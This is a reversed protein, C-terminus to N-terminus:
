RSLVAAAGAAPLRVTFASGRGPASEVAIKGSHLHAIEQAIALGLGAGGGSRSAEVRYFREFLHPLHEAPMGPGTDLFAVRISDGARLARVTVKGGAPTYKIANDLLNLFLSILYDPEGQVDLESAVDVSLDIQRAAALPEAQEVVAELLEDLDVWAPQWHLHGQDLRALFLLGSTLRSLREVAQAIDKLIHTYEQESRPRGLAVEIRGKIVALPTRLEHSVDATFRKEREFAAQLRDLMNDFAAALEGVEDPPGRHDIRRTLDGAGIAQATRRIRDIPSLARGALFLGGLGALLVVLPVRLLAQQRQGALLKQEPALSKAVQLWGGAVPRSLVRWGGQTNSLARLDPAPTPWDPRAQDEGPLEWGGGTPVQLRVAVGAENSCHFVAPLAATSGICHDAVQTLTSDVQALLGNELQFYLLISCVLLTAGLLGSYWLTLRVRLTGWRRAFKVM